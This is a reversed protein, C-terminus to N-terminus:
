QRRSVAGRANYKRPITATGSSPSMAIWQLERSCGGCPCRGVIARVTVFILCEWESASSPPCVGDTDKGM